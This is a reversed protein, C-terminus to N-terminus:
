MLGIGSMASQMYIGEVTNPAPGILPMNDPTKCYYGGNVQFTRRVQPDYVYDKMQPFLKTLGRLCIEPYRHM